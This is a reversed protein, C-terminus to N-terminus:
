SGERARPAFFQPWALTIHQAVSTRGVPGVSMCPFLVPPQAAAASRMLSAAARKRSSRTRAAPPLPPATLGAVSTFGRGCKYVRGPWLSAARPRQALHARVRLILGPRLLPLPPARCECYHLVLAARATRSARGGRAPRPCSTTPMAQCGALTPARRALWVRPACLPATLSEGRQRVPGADVNCMRAPPTAPPTAPRPADGLLWAGRRRSLAGTSNAACAACWHWVPPIQELKM